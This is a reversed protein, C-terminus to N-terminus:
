RTVKPPADDLTFGPRPLTDIALTAREALHAFAIAGEIDAADDSAARAIGRAAAAHARLKERMITTTLPEAASNQLALAHGNMLRSFARLTDIQRAQTEKKTM